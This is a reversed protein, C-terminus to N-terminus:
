NCIGPAGLQLPQAPLQHLNRRPPADLAKGQALGRPENMGRKQLEKDFVCPRMSSDQVICWKEEKGTSILTHGTRTVTGTSRLALLDHRYVWRARYTYGCARDSFSVRQVDNNRLSCKSQPEEEM